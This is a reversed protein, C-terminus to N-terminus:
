CLWQVHSIIFGDKDWVNGNVMKKGKPLDIIIDVKNVKLKVRIHDVLSMNIEPYM